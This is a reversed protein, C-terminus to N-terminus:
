ASKRRLRLGAAGIALAALSGVTTPEPIGAGADIATGPTDEFAWDVITTPYAPVPDGLGMNLRIWGYHTNAGINFRLGLFGDTVGNEWQTALPYAGTPDRYTLLPYPFSSGGSVFTSAPGVPAGGALKSAYAFASGTGQLSDGTNLFALFSRGGGSFNLNFLNVEYGPVSAGSTGFTFGDVDLYIGASTLPNIAINQPGSYQIAADATDTTAGVVGAAAMAACAALHKDLRSTFASASESRLQASM